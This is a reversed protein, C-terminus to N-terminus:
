YEEAARQAAKRSLGESILRPGVTMEWVEIFRCVRYLCRYMDADSLSVFAEKIDKKTSSVYATTGNRQPSPRASFTQIKVTWPLRSVEGTKRLGERTITLTSVPVFGGANRYVNVREQRYSYNRGGVSPQAPTSPTVARLLGSMTDPDVGAFPTGSRADPPLAVATEQLRKYLRFAEEGLDMKALAQLEPVPAALVTRGGWPMTTGNLLRKVAAVAPSAPTPTSDANGMVVNQRCVDLLLPILEPAVNAQVSVSGAKGASYDTILLKITSRASHKAGGIGHLMAYDEPNAAVLNNRFDLFKGRTAAQAITDNVSVTTNQM